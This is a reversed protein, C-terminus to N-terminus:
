VLVTTKTTRTTLATAHTPTAVPTSPVWSRTLPRVATPRRGLAAALRRRFRRGQLPARAATTSSPLIRALSSSLITLRQFDISFPPELYWSKLNNDGWHIYYKYTTNVCVSGPDNIPICDNCYSMTLKQSRKMLTSPSAVVAGALVAALIARIYFM